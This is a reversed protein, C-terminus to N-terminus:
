ANSIDSPASERHYAQAHDDGRLRTASFIGIQPVGRMKCRRWRGNGPGCSCPDDM